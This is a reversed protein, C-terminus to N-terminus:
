QKTHSQRGLSFNWRPEQGLYPEIESLFDAFFVDFEQENTKRFLRGGPTSLFGAAQQVNFKWQADDVLGIEHLQRIRFLQNFYARMWGAFQAAEADSLEDPAWFGVTIARAVQPDGAIVLNQSNHGDALSDLTQIEIAKRSDRVQIALFILGVMVGFNAVIALWSHLKELTM